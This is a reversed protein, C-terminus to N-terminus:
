KSRPDLAAAGELGSLHVTMHKRPWLAECSLVLVRHEKTAKRGGELIGEAAAHPPM